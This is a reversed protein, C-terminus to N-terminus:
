RRRAHHPRLALGRNAEIVPKVRRSGVRARRMVSAANRVAVSLSTRISMVSINEARLRRAHARRAGTGLARKAIVFSSSSCRRMSAVRVRTGRGAASPLAGDAALLGDAPSSPAAVNRMAPIFGFDREEVPYGTAVRSAVTV